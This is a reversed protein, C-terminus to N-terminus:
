SCDGLPKNIKNFLGLKQDLRKGLPDGINHHVLEIDGPDLEPKM